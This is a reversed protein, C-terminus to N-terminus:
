AGRGFRIVKAGFIAIYQPDLQGWVDIFVQGKRPVITEYEQGLNPLVVVECDDVLEQASQYEGEIVPDYWVCEIDNDDLREILDAGLSAVQVDTGDKFARGLVGVKREGDESADVTLVLWEDLTDGNVIANGFALTNAYDVVRELYAFANVDRPFCPGGYPGGARMYRTNIRPDFGLGMVVSDVDAEYAHCVQALRNAFTIKSTLWFNLAVKTIEASAFDMHAVRSLGTTYRRFFWEAREAARVSSSGIVVFRPEAFGEVAEGLAIFEPSYVMYVERGAVECAIRHLKECAGPMVTSSVVILHPPDDADKERLAVAVERVVDEVRCADFAGSSDSPTNVLVVTIETAGVAMAVSETAVLNSGAQLLCEAFGPEFHTPQHKCIQDVVKPNKDCGWVRVGRSALVAAYVSGLKGLGIVSVDM